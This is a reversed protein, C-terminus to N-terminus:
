QQALPSGMVIWDIRIYIDNNFVFHVTKIGLTSLKAM